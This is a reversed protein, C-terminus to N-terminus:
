SHVHWPSCVCRFSPVFVFFELRINLWKMNSLRIVSLVLHTGPIIREFGDRESSTFIVPFGLKFLCHVFAQSFKTECAHVGDVWMVPLCSVEKSADLSKVLLEDRESSTMAHMNVGYMSRSIKRASISQFADRVQNLRRYIRDHLPDASDDHGKSERSTGSESLASV